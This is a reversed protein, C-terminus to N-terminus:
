QSSGDLALVETVDKVDIGPVNVGVKIGGNVISQYRRSYRETCENGTIAINSEASEIYSSSVNLVPCTRSCAAGKIFM